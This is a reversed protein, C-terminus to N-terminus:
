LKENNSNYNYNFLAFLFLNQVYLSLVHKTHINKMQEYTNHTHYIYIYITYYTDCNECRLEPPCSLQTHKM